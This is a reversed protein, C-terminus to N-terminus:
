GAYDLLAGDPIWGHIFAGVAIGIFVYLIIKKIISVTENRAFLLREKQTQNTELNKGVSMRYVYEQVLHELKLIGILKGGVVGIVIGTATYLLGIKLGFTAILVALAAENILPSTILFSFTIGLPVGAEVFGIFV